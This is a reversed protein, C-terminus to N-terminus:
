SLPKLTKSDDVKFSKFRKELDGLAEQVKLAGKVADEGKLSLLPTVTNLKVTYNRKSATRKKKLDELPAMEPIYKKEKLRKIQNQKWLPDSDLDPKKEPM